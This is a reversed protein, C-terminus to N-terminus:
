SACGDPEVEDEDEDQDFVTVNSDDEHVLDGRSYWACKDEGTKNDWEVLYIDTGQAPILDDIEIVTGDYSYPESDERHSVRDGETLTTYTIVTM